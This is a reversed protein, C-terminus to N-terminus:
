SPVSVATTWAHGCPECLWHHHILGKGLYDSATPAIPAWAGCAPCLGGAVHNDNLAQAHGPAAVSRRPWGREVDRGITSHALAMDIEKAQLPLVVPREAV